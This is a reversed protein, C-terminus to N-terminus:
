NLTGYSTVGGMVLCGAVIQATVTFTSTTVAGLPAALLLGVGSLGGALWGRM